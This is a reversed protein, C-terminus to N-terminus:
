LGAAPSTLNIEKVLQIYPWKPNHPKNTNQSCSSLMSVLLLSFCDLISVVFLQSCCGNDNMPKRVVLHCCLLCCGEVKVIFEVLKLLTVTGLRRQCTELRGGRDTLLRGAPQQQQQATDDRPLYHGQLPAAPHTGSAPTSRGATDDADADATLGVAAVSVASCRRRRCPPGVVSMHPRCREASTGGDRSWRRSRGTGASSRDRICM